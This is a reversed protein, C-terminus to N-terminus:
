STNQESPEPGSLTLLEGDGLCSPCVPPDSTEGDWDVANWVYTQDCRPCSWDFAGYTEVIDPYAHALTPTLKADADTHSELYEVLNQRDYEDLLPLLGEHGIASYPTDAEGCRHKYSCYECEWEREPDAPPLEDIKEYRTQEVMWQVIRNWFSESFDVPFAKIDLTKRSGYVLLGETIPYDYEEDLAYLYAHLQARHHEKPETLHSLSTTTKIETLYVPEADRTVIAPDTSGRLHVDTDEAPITTDIWISNQVYSEDSSISQLYPVIIQEEFESGFWFLGQPPSGERPANQRSYSAKKHCQLLKSPTHHDPDKPASPGNFYSKGQLINQAVQREDYWANFSENSVREVLREQTRAETSASTDIDSNSEDQEPEDSTV